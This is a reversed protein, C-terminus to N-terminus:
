RCPVWPTDFLDFTKQIANRNGANAPPCFNSTKLKYEV